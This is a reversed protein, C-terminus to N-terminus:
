QDPFQSFLLSEEEIFHQWSEGGNCCQQWLLTTDLIHLGVTKVTSIKTLWQSYVFSHGNPRFISNIKDIKLIRRGGFLVMAMMRYPVLSVVLESYKIKTVTVNKGVYLSYSSDNCVDNGSCCVSCFLFTSLHWHNIMWVFSLSLLISM